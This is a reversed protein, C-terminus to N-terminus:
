LKRGSKVAQLRLAAQFQKVADPSAQANITDGGVNFMVPQMQAQKEATTKSLSPASASVSPDLSMSKVQEAFSNKQWVGDVKVLEPRSAVPKLGGESSLTPTTVGAAEVQSAVDGSLAGIKATLADLSAKLDKQSATASQLETALGAQRQELQNVTFQADVVNQDQIQMAVDRAKGILSEADSKSLGKAEGAAQKALDISGTDAAEQIRKEVSSRDIKDGRISSLADNFFAELEASKTYENALAERATRLKDTADNLSNELKLVKSDQKQSAREAIKKKAELETRSINDLDTTLKQRLQAEQYVVDALVKFNDALHENNKMLDSGAKGSLSKVIEGPSMGETSATGKLLKSVNAAAEEKMAALHAQKAQFIQKTVASEQEVDRLKAGHLMRLKDELAAIEAEGAFFSQKLAKMKLEVDVDEKKLGALTNELKAIEQEKAIRKKNFDDVQEQSNGLTSVGLAVTDLSSLQSRANMLKVEQENIVEQSSKVRSEKAAKDKEYNGELSSLPPAPNEVADMSKSVDELSKKFATTAKESAVKQVTLKWAGIQDPGFIRFGELPALLANVVEVQGSKVADTIVSSLERRNAQLQDAPAANEILLKTKEAYEKAKSEAYQKSDVPTGSITSALKPQNGLIELARATDDVTKINGELLAREAVSLREYAEVKAKAEANTPDAALASAAKVYQDVYSTVYADMSQIAENIKQLEGSLVYEDVPTESLKSLEAAFDQLSKSGVAISGTIGKQLLKAADAGKDGTTYKGMVKFAELLKDQQELYAKQNAEDAAALQEEKARREVLAQTSKAVADSRAERDLKALQEPTNKFSDYMWQGIAVAATVGSIIWGAPTVKSLLQKAVGFASKAWSGITTVSTVAGAIELASAPTLMESMSTPAGRGATGIAGDKIRSFLGKGKEVVGKGGKIAGAGIDVAKGFAANVARGAAYGTVLTLFVGAFKEVGSTFKAMAENTTGLLKGFTELGGVVIGFFVSWGLSLKSLMSLAITVGAGTTLGAGVGTEGSKAKLATQYKQYEKVLHTLGETAERLWVVFGKSQDYVLTTVAEGLNQFANQLSELQTKAGQAATGTEQLATRNRLLEDRNNILGRIASEARVDFVRSLQDDAISGMGLKELENLVAVFPDAADRFGVFMAKITEQSMELGIKSYRAQLAKLTKADPSLLELIAQRSGTAITSAKFGANRLTAAAALTTEFSINFAETTQLMYNAISTLDEMTLKSINVANRLGDAISDIDMEQYVNRFSSIVNAAVEFSSGTASALNATARLVKGFDKVEVGAQALTQGGKAIEDTTFSTTEAVAKISEEISLMSDDTANTIAKIGVLAHQLNLVASAVGTFLAQIEYLVKYAVAYRLFAQFSRGLQVMVSDVGNLQQELGTLQHRMEKILAAQGGGSANVKKQAVDLQQLANIYRELANRQTTLMQLRHRSSAGGAFADVEATANDYSAKTSEVKTLATRVDDPKKRAADLAAKTKLAETRVEGLKAQLAELQDRGFSNRPDSVQKVAQTYIGVQKNLERWTLEADNLKKVADLNAPLGATATIAGSAKKNAAISASQALLKKKHAVEALYDKEAQKEAAADREAQEAYAATEATGLMKKHAAFKRVLKKKHAVEALYDKEAQKEAAADREAQEAYAAKEFGPMQSALLVKDRKASYKAANEADGLKRYSDAVKGIADAEAKLDKSSKTQAAVKAADKMDLIQKELGANVRAISKEHLSANASAQKHNGSLDKLEDSVIPMLRQIEKLRAEFSELPIESSLKGSKLGEITREAIVAKKGLDKLYSATTEQKTDRSAKLNPDLANRRLDYPMGAYPDTQEFMGSTEAYRKQTRGQAKAVKSNIADIRKQLAAEHSAILRDREKYLKEITKNLSNSQKTLDAEAQKFTGEGLGLLSKLPNKGTTSLSGKIGFDKAVGALLKTWEAQILKGDKSITDKSEVLRKHIEAALNGEGMGAGLHKAALNLEKKLAGLVKHAEKQIGSTDAKFDLPLTLNKDKVSNEFKKLGKEVGELLKQDNIKNLLLNLDLGLEMSLDTKKAM